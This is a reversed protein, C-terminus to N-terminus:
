AGMSLLDPFVQQGTQYADTFAEIGHSGGNVLRRAKALDGALLASAIRERSANVFSALLRAAIIPDNARDPMDVLDAVEILRGHREYNARGTLQIFGRGRYREGDPPGTNGLDVRHDYLDFPVGGPSTNFRNPSESIPVFGATEARITALSMVVIPKDVLAADVLAQLVTPLHLAINQVPTGPFMRSVLPVTVANLAAPVAPTDVLGIAIATQPGVIGDAGLGSAQQFAIVAAQTGLGFVGDIAGALFGRDQLAQQLAAVLPGSSGLRLVEM